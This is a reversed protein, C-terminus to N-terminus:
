SRFVEAPDIHIIRRVPIYSAFISMTNALVFVNVLDVGRTTTVFVPVFNPIIWLLLFTLGVGVFYGIIGSVFSQQFIIQYIQLNSGGIAKLVGFERAKEITATYITLGIVATGVLVSILVLVAIIPVFVEDILRRNKDVFEERDLADVGGIQNIEDRVEDLKGSDTKVLYFNTFGETGFLKIAEKQDIFSFQFLFMNAGDAIGVVKLSTGFIEVFEGIELKKNKALVKDVVIEGEDPVKKGSLMKKPGSIPKEPDFGVIYTNVDKNKLSFSVPKGVFKNVQSVGPLTKIKLGVSDPILSASSTIDASGSQTVWLDTDIGRIYETAKVRWGQYLSLIILILMVSFAVGGVSIAFRTKEAFLNRLAISVM